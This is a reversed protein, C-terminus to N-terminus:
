RRFKPIFMPVKKKYELYEKGFRLELEREEVAKLYLFGLLTLLPIFILILSLSGFLFGLGEGILIGATAMPNRVHAYIGTTILKTPPKFPMPTGSARRFTVIIWADIVFGLLLLLAFLGIGWWTFRFVPLALWRDVWFSALIFLAIIVYLILPMLAKVFTRRRKDGTAAANISVAWRDWISMVAIREANDRHATYIQKLSTDLEGTGIYIQKVAM